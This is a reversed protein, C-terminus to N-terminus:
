RYCWVELRGQRRVGSQGGGISGPPQVRLASSTYYALLSRTFMETQMETKPRSSASDAVDTINVEVWVPGAKGVLLLQPHNKTRTCWGLLVPKGCIKFSHHTKALKPSNITKRRNQVLNQCNKTLFHSFRGFFKKRFRDVRFRDTWELTWKVLESRKAVQM